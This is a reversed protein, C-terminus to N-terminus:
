WHLTTMEVMTRLVLTYLVANGGLLSSVKRTQSVKFHVTKSPVISLADASVVVNKEQELITAKLPM